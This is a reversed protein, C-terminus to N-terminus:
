LAKELIVFHLDDRQPVGFREDGYPFPETKGTLGYGRREYWAILTDRVSIVTMEMTKGGRERAYNEAAELMTRGLGGDQRLPSVTVMGVYWADDESPQIWVSAYPTEGEADRLTLITSGPSAVLDARLSAEDTRQGGLLYSESTWGKTALEGRYASNVLVAIDALEDDKYPTLLTM